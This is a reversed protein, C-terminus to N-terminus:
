EYQEQAEEQRPSRKCLTKTTAFQIPIFNLLLTRRTFICRNVSDSNRNSKGSELRGRNHWKVWCLAAVQHPFVFRRGVRICWRRDTGSRYCAWVQTTNQQVFVRRVPYAFEHTPKHVSKIYTGYRMYLMAAHKRDRSRFVVCAMVNLVPIM